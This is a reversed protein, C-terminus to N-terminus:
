KKIIKVIKTYKGRIVLLYNGSSKNQLDIKLNINRVSNRYVLRGYNDMISIELEENSPLDEINLIESVPNPFVKINQIWSEEISSIYNITESQESVCAATNAVVVYYNGEETVVLSQNTEGAIPLGNLYWQNGHVSSSELTNGILEIIPKEPNPNVVLFTTVVSDVGISSMLSRTYIGSVTWSEYTEGECISINEFSNIKDANDTSLIAGYEGVVIGKENSALTVGYLDYTYPVRSAFWSLGGDTTGIVLGGEGSIIGNNTDIFHVDLLDTDIGLNISNWSNGGNTSKLLVGNNGVIIGHNKDAFSVANLDETTGSTITSFSESDDISRLIKGSEGVIIIQSDIYSVDILKLYISTFHLHNWSSGANSTISFASHLDYQSGNLKAYLGVAIGKNENAFSIGYYNVKNSSYLSTWNEGGNYTKMIIGDYAFGHSPIFGDTGTVFYGKTNSALCVSSLFDNISGNISPSDYEQLSWSNGGDITTLVTGRDGVAIGKYEGHFSVSKLNYDVGMQQGEWDEGYNDTKFIQGGTGVISGNCAGYFHNDGVQHYLTWFDGNDTMLIVSKDKGVVTIHDADSAHVDYLNKSTMNEAIENWTNGSDTTRLVTGGYGVIFGTSNDYFSVGGLNYSVGSASEMWSWGGNTTNYITGNEGVITGNYADTFHVGYFWSSSGCNQQIWNLGGDTTRLITGNSGVATGIQEDVFYVSRLDEDTGSAQIYWNNGADITKIITGYSGVIYALNPNVCIVDYLIRETGSVQTVWNSGGNSTHIITGLYGVSFGNMDDCYSISQLTNGQPEPYHWEWAFQSTGTNSILFLVIALSLVHKKM